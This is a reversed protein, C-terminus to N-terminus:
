KKIPPPVNNDITIVMSKAGPPGVLKECIGGDGNHDSAHGIGVTALEFGDPCGAAAFVPLAMAALLVVLLAVFLVKKM